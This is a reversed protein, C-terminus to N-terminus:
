FIKKTKVIGEEEFKETSNLTPKNTNFVVRVRQGERFSEDIGHISLYHNKGTDEELIIATVKGAGVTKFYSVETVTGTVEKAGGDAYQAIGLGLVLLLIVLFFLRFRNM